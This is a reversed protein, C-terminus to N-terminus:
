NVKPPDVGMKKLQAIIEQEGLYGTHRYVEKGDKDFFIQTPIARIGFRGSQDRNEWVDIFVIAAKGKYVKEMKEMIPAMMKCPICKKAGLDIMTVMGKVPVNNLDIPVNIDIPKPESNSDANSDNVFFQQHIAGVFGAILLAILIGYRIKKM